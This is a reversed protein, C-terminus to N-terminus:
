EGTGVGALMGIFVKLWLKGTVLDLIRENLYKLSRPQLLKMPDSPLIIGLM